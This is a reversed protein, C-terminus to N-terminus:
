LSNSLEVWYIPSSSNKNNNAKTIRFNKRMAATSQTLTILNGGLRANINPMMMVILVVQRKAGIQYRSIHHMM